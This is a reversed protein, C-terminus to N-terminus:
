IGGIDWSVTFGQRLVLDTLIDTRGALAWTEIAFPDASFFAINASTTPTTRSRYVIGDLDTWWRRAVDALRHCTEWVAAHQGTSIQDDIDLVDLNRETRLDLVRLRRNTILRVVHHTAHDAPIVLGTARYRERFAGILASGAYRTRFAGSAPDFRYRPDGFGVWTWEAPHTADIRWFEAGVAVPRRRLGVPRADPLLTLYGAPLNPVSPPSCGGRPM